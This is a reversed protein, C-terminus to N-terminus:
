SSSGGQSRNKERDVMNREHAVDVQKEAVRTKREATAANAAAIDVKDDELSALVLERRAKAQALRTEAIVKKVQEAKERVELRKLQAESKALSARVQQMERALKQQEPSPPRTMQRVAEALEAKHGSASNEFIAAIILPHAPSDEKVYGLMNTLLANEAEKAMIGMASDVRFKMDTPYRREDFQMYRWLSKRILPTLFTREINHMTRKSRKIFGSQLTSLGSATENRANVGVPTASDMAGTGMQVMRELDGSHQFTQAIQAPNGFQIAELVESPRGRTFLTRGPRVRFDGNRPLRTVDAGMMPASMLAMADIRARMEADLAKQPNYGKEAVGRGWFEGPVTDHQYAIFPRDKMRYPNEVAKLVEGHSTLTVLAEVMGSRTKSEPLLEAPVRGAYEILKVSNDRTDARATRGTGDTDQREGQYASVSVKRYLGKKQREKISHMPKIFEHACFLADEITTASPDIVFQDARVAELPVSIRSREIPDGTQPDTVIERKQMVNIKAIGTGYIAGLLFTQSCAAPVGDLEFDELLQNRYELADDKNEDRIDDTVDFWAKKSFIAEEIEAVTMEIAQSLAPSILQSRESDTNKDQKTFMGRWLRTYEKWRDSYREDRVQRAHDVKEMIWMSLGMLGDDRVDNLNTSDGFANPIGAM